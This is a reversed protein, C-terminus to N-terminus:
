ETPNFIWYFIFLYVYVIFALGFIKYVMNEKGPKYIHNGRKNKNDVASSLLQNWLVDMAM